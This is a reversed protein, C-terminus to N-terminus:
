PEEEPGLVGFSANPSGGEGAMRLRICRILAEYIRMMRNYMGHIPRGAEQAIQKITRNNEYRLRILSRDSDNLRSVCQRLATLREDTQECAREARQAQEDPL